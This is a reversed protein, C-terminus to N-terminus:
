CAPHLTFDIGFRGLGHAASEPPERNLFLSEHFAVGRQVMRLEHTVFFVFRWSRSIISKLLFQSLRGNADDSPHGTAQQQDGQTRGSDEREQAKTLRFYRDRQGISQDPDSHQQNEPHQRHNSTANEDKSRNRGLM